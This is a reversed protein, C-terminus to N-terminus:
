AASFTIPLLILIVYAHHVILLDFICRSLPKGANQNATFLSSLRAAHRINYNDKEQLIEFFFNSGRASNELSAPFSFSLTIFGLLPLFIAVRHFLQTLILSSLYFLSVELKSTKIHISHTMLLSHLLQVLSLSFLAHTMEFVHLCTIVM